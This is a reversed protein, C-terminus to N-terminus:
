TASISFFFCPEYDHRNGLELASTNNISNCFTIWCHRTKRSYFDIAKIRICNRNKIGARANNVLSNRASYKNFNGLQDTIVKPHSTIQKDMGPRQVLAHGLSPRFLPSRPSGHPLLAPFGIQALAAASDVLAFIWDRQSFVHEADFTSDREVCRGQLGFWIRRNEKM